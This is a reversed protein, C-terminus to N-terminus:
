LQYLREGKFSSTPRRASIGQFSALWAEVEGREGTTRRKWIRRGMRRGCAEMHVIGLQGSLNRVEWGDLAADSYTIIRQSPGRHLLSNEKKCLLLTHYTSTGVGNTTM